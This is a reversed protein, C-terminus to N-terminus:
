GGRPEQPAFRAEVSVDQRSVLELSTGTAAPDVGDWGVFRYGDAARAEVEVPVGAFYTGSWSEGNGDGTRSTGNVEISGGSGSTEVTVRITGDLAFQQVLHERKVASRDRMFDRLRDVNERWADHSRPARWRDIHHEMEQELLEELDDLKPITRSPDFTSNLHDAFRNLFRNRVEDNSMLRHFLMPYGDRSLDDAPALHNDFVNYDVDFRGRGTNDLDFLLFRWRGDRVGEGPHHPGDPERWLRVNNHPWDSNGAFIQAVMYDIFSELDIEDGVREIVEPDRMDADILFELLEVFPQESGPPGATVEHYRDLIVVGDPDAGYRAELYHRDYRERLNHVGWYEGNIFLVTPRYAQTGMEFDAMLGQLYGDLMMTLRSDSGSNRLLLRRHNDPAADDFFPHRFRRDGYDNRAYLRLSKQPFRRTAGGHVRVGVNRQYTCQGGADCYEFVVSRRLEYQLPREWERGRQGYNAPMWWRYEPDFEESHYYEEFVRGAVYIGEDHDFLFEEDLTLSIVPLEPRRLEAGIFFTAVSEASYESRARVVTGKHVPGAIDPPSSVNWEVLETPITTDITSLRNPEPTRDGIRISGDYVHTRRPNSDLDPFSGDLTYIIRSGPLSADIELEIPEDFFGSTESLSPAGLDSDDFCEPANEYGPTPVAFYCTRDLDEPDRGYSADRPVFVSPLQDVRTDGDPAILLVPEGDQALRFDTHLEGVLTARDKGSAFVVQYDGPELAIQPLVWGDLDDKDDSLRYGGLDIVEGTPNHLEIWDPYDGDEDELISANSSVFETIIPGSSMTPATLSPASEDEGAAGLGLLVLFGLGGVVFAGLGLRQLLLSSRIRDVPVM